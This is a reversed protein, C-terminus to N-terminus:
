KTGVTMTIVTEGDSMAVSMSLARTDKTAMFTTTGDASFTGEIKWGQTALEKKYFEVVKDGSDTSQLMVMSGSQGNTQNSSGAYAVKTGPYVPADSPWNDPLKTDGWTATGDATKVTVANGNVDVKAKGGSAAEMAKEAVFNNAAGCGSIFVLAVAFLAVNKEISM